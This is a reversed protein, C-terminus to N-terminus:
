LITLFNVGDNFKCLTKNKEIRLADIISTSDKQLLQKKGSVFDMM